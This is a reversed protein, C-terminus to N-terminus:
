SIASFLHMCPTYYFAYTLNEQDNYYEHVKILQDAHIGSIGTEEQIERILGQVGQNELKGGIMGYHGNLKPREMSLLSDTDPNYTILFACDEVGEYNYVARDRLASTM